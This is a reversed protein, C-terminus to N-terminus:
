NFIRFCSVFLFLLSLKNLKILKCFYYFDPAIFKTKTQKRLAENQHVLSSNIPLLRLIISAPILNDGYIEPGFNMRYIDFFLKKTLMKLIEHM